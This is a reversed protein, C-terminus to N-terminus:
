TAIDDRILVVTVSYGSTGITGSTTYPLYKTGTSSKRVRVVISTPSQYNFNVSANGDSDTEKNMLPTKAYDSTTYLVVLNNNSWTNGTAWTGTSLPTTTVSDTNVTLVHAWGGSTENRIVDGEKVNMAGIGTDNLLTASGGAECTGSAKSELTFTKTTPNVSAYRYHHEKGTSVDVVMLWGSAPVDADIPVSTVYDLDGQLNSDTSTYSTPNTKQIYCQAHQISNGDIDEVHISLTKTSEFVITGGGTNDGYQANSTGSNQITVLGATTNEVDYKSVGDTGSFVINVFGYTGASTIEIGHNTPSIFMCDSVNFTTDSITMADGDASIFNCYKMTCTNPTVVGCAEFNCNLVEKTTSYAPLAVTEADIFSCGYLKMTDVNTDTATFKFKATGVSKIICGSIGSTGSKEGLEFSNTGTSNGVVKLEYHTSSVMADAFLLIQSTDKFYTSTAGTNDGFTIPGQLIFAGYAKSLVGYAPTSDAAIIEDFTGKDGSTGGKVILGTGHYLIDVWCNYEGVVTKGLVKFYITIYRIQNHILTGSSANPTTGTYIVFNQFGGYYNDKGGVWWEEYNGGSDTVRLRIGGNAKTDLEMTSQVWFYIHTEGTIDLYTNGHDAYYDYQAYSTEQSVKEIGISGTGERKNETDVGITENSTWNDVADCDDIETLDASLSVAM